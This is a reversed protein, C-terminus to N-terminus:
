CGLFYSITKVNNYLVINTTTIDNFIYRVDNTHIFLYRSYVSIHRTFNTM